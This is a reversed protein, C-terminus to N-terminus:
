TTVTSLLRTRFFANRQFKRFHSKFNLFFVTVVLTFWFFFHGLRCIDKWIIWFNYRLYKFVKKKFRNAFKLFAFSRKLYKLMKEVPSFCTVVLTFWFFLHGLRCIDRWIIWFNYRLYKFVKKLFSKSIKPLCIFTKSIKVNLYSYFKKKFALLIGYKVRLSIQSQSQLFICM